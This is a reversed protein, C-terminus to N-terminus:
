ILSALWIRLRLGWETTYGVSTFVINGQPNLIFLAPVANVGYMEAIDGHQDNVVQWNLHKEQLYQNVTNDTGSRLAITLIPDSLSIANISNQMLGCIGCWNAWFYIVSPPKLNEPLSPLGAVTNRNIFPPKGTVLNSTQLFQGAFIVAVMLIYFLSKKIM